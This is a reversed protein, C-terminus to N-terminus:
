KKTRANPRTHAHAHADVSTRASEYKDTSLSMTSAEFKLVLVYKWAFFLANESASICVTWFHFCRMAFM